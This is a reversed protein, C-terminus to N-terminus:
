KTKLVESAFTIDPPVKQWCDFVFKINSSELYSITKLNLESHSSPWISKQQGGRDLLTAGGAISKGPPRSFTMQSKCINFSLCLGNMYLARVEIFDLVMM